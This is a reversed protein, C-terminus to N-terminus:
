FSLNNAKEREALKEFLGKWNEFNVQWLSICFLLPLLAPSFQISYLEEYLIYIYM